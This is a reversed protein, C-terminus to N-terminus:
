SSAAPAGWRFEIPIEIRPDLSQHVPCTLATRELAKRHKEEIDHPITITVPLRAIRRQPDAIMHKEVKITSGELPIGKREAFIGMVTMMCAALATGVLDTPSFSAGKGHNDVPADTPFTAGSPGHSAECRLQGQYAVQIEVAM